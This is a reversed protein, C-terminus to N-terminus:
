RFAALWAQFRGALEPHDSWFGDDIRLMQEVRHPAASTRALLDPPIAAQAGPGIGVVPVDATVAAQWDPQQQLRLFRWAAAPRPARKPVAWSLMEGLAGTWQQGVKGSPEYTAPAVTMLVGGSVLAKLAATGDTWWVVYPRIQDLKRFARAVGDGSALVRYVDAAAVGDAMLAIELTGRAQSRLGRKGPYRAVDWFDPWGPSTQDRTKDWALVLASMFGPLGCSSAPPYLDRAGLADWDLPLLLGERCGTLAAENPMLMADPETGGGAERQQLTSLQGSWPSFTAPLEASALRNGLAQRYADTLVPGPTEVSVSSRAPQDTSFADPAVGLLGSILVATRLLHVSPLVTM